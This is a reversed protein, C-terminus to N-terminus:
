RVVSFTEVYSRVGRPKAIATLTFAPQGLVHRGHRTLRVRAATAVEGRPLSFEGEGITGEGDRLVVRGRCRKTSPDLRALRLIRAEAHIATPWVTCAPAPEGCGDDGGRGPRPPRRAQLFREFRSPYATMVADACMDLVRAYTAENEEDSDLWVHVAYGDGHARSVLEPTAIDLTTSGVTFQLPVQFARVGDGPSGGGLIYSAMGGVGPAVHILPAAAHFANVAAQNFSVVIVDMRGARLLEAALLGATHLAEVDDGKIEINIPVSPFTRLVERLTPVRFDAATYGRPAQRRGTAIGRFRYASAPHDHSYHDEKAPAFWYAADLRKIQALTKSAVTGRGNTKGDVTTDHMVIVKGDKTVGIDLELM